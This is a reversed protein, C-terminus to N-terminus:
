GKLVNIDDLGIDWGFWLSCLGDEGDDGVYAYWEVFAHKAWYNDPITDDDDGVAGFECIAVSEDDKKIDWFPFPTKIAYTLEGDEEEGDHTLSFDKFRIDTCDATDEVAYANEIAFMDVGNFDKQVLSDWLRFLRVDSGAVEGDSGNILRVLVMLTIDEDVEIEFGYMTMSDHVWKNVDSIQYSAEDGDNASLTHFDQLIIIDGKKIESVQDVELM